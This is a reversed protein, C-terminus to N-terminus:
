NIPQARSEDNGDNGESARGPSRGGRPGPMDRLCIKPDSPCQTKDDKGPRCFVPVSFSIGSDSSEHCSVTATCIPREPDSADVSASAYECNMDKIKKQEKAQRLQARQAAFNQCDTSLTVGSDKLCKMKEPGRKSSCEPSASLEAGCAQSLAGDMFARAAAPPGPRKENAGFAAIPTLTLSAILIKQFLTKMSLFYRQITDPTQCSFGLGGSRNVRM